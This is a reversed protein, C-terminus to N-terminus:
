ELQSRSSSGTTDAREPNGRVLAVFGLAAPGGILFVGVVWGITNSSDRATQHLIVFSGLALSVVDRVVTM